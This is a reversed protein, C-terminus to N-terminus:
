LCFRPVIKPMEEFCFDWLLVMHAARCTVQTAKPTHPKSLVLDCRSGCKGRHAQSASGLGLEKAEAKTKPWPQAEWGAQLWCRCESKHAPTHVPTHVPIHAAAHLHVHTDSSLPHWLVTQPLQNKRKVMNTKSISSRDSPKAALVKIAQAM